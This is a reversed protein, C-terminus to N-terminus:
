DYFFGSYNEVAGFGRAGADNNFVGVMPVIDKETSVTPITEGPTYNERTPSQDNIYVYVADIPYQRTPSLYPAFSGQRSEDLFSDRNDGIYQRQNEVINEPEIKIQEKSPKCSLILKKFFNIIRNDVGVGFGLNEAEEIAEQPDMGMYKCKFLAILLGTRDKGARCHIFTPGEDLLLSRLDYRLINLLDKKHNDLNIPLVVHKIDLMKCARHIKKASEEDLSIIKNINFKKKLLLVDQPSPASGRFLKKPVVEIFKNIM